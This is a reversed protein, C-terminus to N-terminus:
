VVFFFDKNLCKDWLREVTVITKPGKCSVVFILDNVLYYDADKFDNNIARTIMFSQLIAIKRVEAFAKLFAMKGVQEDRFDSGSREIFRDIAHKTVVVGTMMTKVFVRM